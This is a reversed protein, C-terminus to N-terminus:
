LQSGESFVGGVDGVGFPEASCCLGVCEHENAAYEGEGENPNETVSVLCVLVYLFLGKGLPFLRFSTNFKKFQYSIINFKILCAKGAM